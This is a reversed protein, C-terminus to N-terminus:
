FIGTKGIGNTIFAKDNIIKASNLITPNKHFPTSWLFSGDNMSHCTIGNTCAIILNNGISKMQLPKGVRDKELSISLINEGDRINYINLKKEDVVFLRGISDVLTLFHQKFKKFQWIIKGNSTDLAMLAFPDVFIYEHIEQKKRIVNGSTGRTTYTFFYEKEALGGVQLLLLGNTLYM